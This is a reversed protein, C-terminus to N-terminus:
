KKLYYENLNVGNVFINAFNLDDKDYRFIARIEKINQLNIGIFNEFFFIDSNESCLFINKNKKDILDSGVVFFKGNIINLLVFINKIQEYVMFDKMLTKSGYISKM